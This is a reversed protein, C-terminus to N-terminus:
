FHRRFWRITRDWFGTAPPEAYTSARGATDARHAEQAIRRQMPPLWVVRNSRILYHSRCPFQGNGVSPSLTVTGDFTLVWDAPGFPTVVRVACGCACLHSATAYEMSIYIDGDALDTPVFEVFVPTLEQIRM